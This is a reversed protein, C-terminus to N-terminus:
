RVSIVYLERGMMATDVVVSRVERALLDSVMERYQDPYDSTDPDFTFDRLIVEKIAGFLADRQDAVGELLVQQGAVLEKFAVTEEESAKLQKIAEDLQSQLYASKATLLKKLEEIETPAAGEATPDYSFDTLISKKVADMLRTLQDGLSDIRAKQGSKIREFAEDDRKKQDTLEELRKRLEDNEAATPTNERLVKLDVLAQKVAAKQTEVTQNRLALEQRTSDLQAQVEVLQQELTKGKSTPVPKGPQPAAQASGPLAALKERLEVNAAFLRALGEEAKRADGEAEALSRKLEEMEGTVASQSQLSALESQLHKLEETAMATQRLRAVAEQMREPNPLDAKLSELEQHLQFMRDRREGADTVIGVFPVIQRTEEDTAEMADVVQQYKQRFVAVTGELAKAEAELLRRDLDETEVLIPLKGLIDKLERTSKRAAEVKLLVAKLREDADGGQFAGILAQLM